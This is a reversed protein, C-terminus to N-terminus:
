RADWVDIYWNISDRLWQPGSHLAWLAPSYIAEFVPKASWPLVGRSGLRHVLGFSLPYVVLVTVILAVAARKAWREKRNVIRVTLWVSVAALGIGMIVPITHSM